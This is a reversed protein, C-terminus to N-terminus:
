LSLRESLPYNDGWGDGVTRLTAYVTSIQHDNAGLDLMAENCLIQDCQQRTLLMPMERDNAIVNIRGKFQYLYDHVISGLAIEPSDHLMFVGQITKPISALDTLYGAPVVIIGKAVDSNFSLNAGTIWWAKGNNKIGRKQMGTPSLLSLPFLEFDIFRKM